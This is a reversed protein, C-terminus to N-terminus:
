YTSTVKVAVGDLLDMPDDDDLRLRAGEKIGKEKIASANSEDNESGESEDESGYLVDEFADGAIDRSPLIQCKRPSYCKRVLSGITM